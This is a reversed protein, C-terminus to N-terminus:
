TGVSQGGFGVLLVAVAAAQAANTVALAIKQPPDLDLTFGVALGAGGFPIGDRMGLHLSLTAGATLSVLTVSHIWQSDLAPLTQQAAAVSLDIRVTRYSWPVITTGEIPDRALALQELVALLRDLVAQPIAVLQPNQPDLALPPTM